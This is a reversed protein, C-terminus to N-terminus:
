HHAKQLLQAIAEPRPQLLDSAAEKLFGKMEQLLQLIDDTAVESGTMVKPSKHKKGIFKAHVTKNM